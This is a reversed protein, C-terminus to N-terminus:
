SYRRRKQVGSDKKLENALKNISSMGERKMREDLYHIASDINDCEGREVLAKVEEIVRKRQSFYQCSAGPAGYQKKRWNGRHHEEMWEVSPRGEEPFGDFWEKWLEAVTVTSEKLTTYEFVPLPDVLRPTRPASESERIHPTAHVDPSSAESPQAKLQPVEPPPLRSHSASATTTASTPTLVQAQTHSPRESNITTFASPRFQPVPNPQPVYPSNYTHPDTTNTPPPPPAATISVPRAHAHRERWERELMSYGCDDWFRGDHWVQERLRAERVFGLKEYLRMATTNYEYCWLCVKHLAARRFSWELAWRIAETGYGSGRFPRAINVGLTTNRCHREKPTDTLTVTGIPTMSQSASWPTASPPLCIIAAMLCSDFFDRHEKASRKGQPVPLWATSRLQSETDQHMALLFPDDSEEVARYILRESEFIESMTAPSPYSKRSGLFHVHVANLRYSGPHWTTLCYRAHNLTQDAQPRQFFAKFSRSVSTQSFPVTVCLRRGFQSHVLLSLHPQPSSTHPLLSASCHLDVGHSGPHSVRGLLGM